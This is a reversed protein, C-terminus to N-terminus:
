DYLRYAHGRAIQPARMDNMSLAKQDSICIFCKIGATIMGTAIIDADHLSSSVNAGALPVPLCIQKVGVSSRCDLAPWLSDSGASM